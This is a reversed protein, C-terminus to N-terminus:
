SKTLVRLLGVLYQRLNAANTPANM